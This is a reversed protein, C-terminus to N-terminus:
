TPVRTGSCCRRSDEETEAIETAKKRGYRYEGRVGCARDLVDAEAECATILCASLLARRHGKDSWSGTDLCVRYHQKVQARKIGILDGLKNTLKEIRHAHGAGAVTREQRTGGVPVSRAGGAKSPEATAFRCLKGVPVAKGKKKPKEEGEEERGKRKKTPKDDEEDEEEAKDKRHRKKKTAEKEQKGKGTDYRQASGDAKIQTEKKTAEKEEKPAAKGKKASKGKGKGKVEEEEESKVEEM